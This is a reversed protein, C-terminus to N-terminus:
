KDLVKLYIEEICSAMFIMQIILQKHINFNGNQRNSLKLFHGNKFNFQSSISFSCSKMKPNSFTWVTYFVCFFSIKTKWLAVYKKSAQNGAGLNLCVHVIVWFCNIKPNRMCFVNCTGITLTRALGSTMKACFVNELTAIERGKM